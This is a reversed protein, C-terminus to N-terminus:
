FRTSSRARISAKATEIARDPAAMTELQGKRAAIRFEVRSLHEDGTIEARKDIGRYGSDSYVVEDDARVLKHTEDVDHVNAATATVTHVYGSGADAGIQAKMGFYWQNGKKTQHMDPDREGAVNKTSAPAAIITADVVSGGRMIWGNADFLRNLSDFMARGLDYKEIMHRFHLLTRADPVQRVAFDLHMFRRMAYSDNIQDEVAEDSLNFWVRLLYMRLMTEIPVPKRGRKSNFDHPEILATWEGWAIVQDMQDPFEQRNPVRRRDYEVDPFSPQSEAM